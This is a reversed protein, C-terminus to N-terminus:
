YCRRSHLAMSMKGNYHSEFMYSQEGLEIRAVDRLYVRSGDELTRLFIAGLEDPTELTGPGQITIGLQAGPVAPSGNVEGVPVQINQAQLAAVVDTSTLGYSNLKNADLWIRMANEAGFFDVQGIGNVRQVQDLINLTIDNRLEELNM